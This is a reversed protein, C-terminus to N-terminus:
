GHTPLRETYRLDSKTEFSGSVVFEDTNLLVFVAVVFDIMGDNHEYRIPPTHLTKSGVPYSLVAPFKKLPFAYM